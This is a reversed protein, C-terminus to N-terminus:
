SELEFLKRISTSTKTSMEGFNQQPHLGGNIATQTMLEDQSLEFLAEHSYVMASELSDGVKTKTKIGEKTRRNLRPYRLVYPSGVTYRQEPLASYGPPRALTKQPGHLMSRSLSAVDFRYTM